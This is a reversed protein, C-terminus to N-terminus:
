SQTTGNPGSPGTPGTTGTAAKKLAADLSKVAVDALKLDNDLKREASASARRLASAVSPPVPGVAKWTDGVASLSFGLGIFLTSAERVGAPEAVAAYGAASWTAVDRCFNLARLAPVLPGISALDRVEATPKKSRSELTSFRASLPALETLPARVSDGVFQAALEFSLEVGASTPATAFPRRVTGTSFCPQQALAYAVDAKATAESESGVRQLAAIVVAATTPGGSSGSRSAAAATPATVVATAAAVALM